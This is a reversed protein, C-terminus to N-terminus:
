PPAQKPKTALYLPDSASLPRDLVLGVEGAQRRIVRASLRRGRPPLIVVVKEQPGVEATCDLGLGERSIDTITASTEWGRLALRCPIKLRVRPSFRRQKLRPPTVTGLPDVDSLEGRAARILFKRISDADSLYDPGLLARTQPALLKTAEAAFRATERLVPLTRSIRRAEMWSTEEPQTFPAIRRKAGLIAHSLRDLQSATEFKMGAHAYYRLAGILPRADDTLLPRLLRPSAERKNAAYAAVSIVLAGYGLATLHWRAVILEFLMKPSPAQRNMM